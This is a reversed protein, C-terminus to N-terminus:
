FLSIVWFIVLGGIHSKWNQRRCGLNKKLLCEFYKGGGWIRVDVFGGGLGGGKEDFFFFVSSRNADAGVSGDATKLFVQQALLEIARLISRIGVDEWNHPGDRQPALIWLDDFGFVYDEKSTLSANKTTATKLSLNGFLFFDPELFLLPPHPSFCLNQPPPPINRQILNKFFCFVHGHFNYFTEDEM